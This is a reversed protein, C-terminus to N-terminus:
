QEGNKDERSTITNDVLEGDVDATIGLAIRKERDEELLKDREIKWKQLHEDFGGSVEIKTNTGFMTRYVECMGKLLNIKQFDTLKAENLLFEQLQFIALSNSKADNILAISQRQIALPNKTMKLGRIKASLKKRESTKGKGRARVSDSYPDGKGKLPFVRGGFKNEVGEINSEDRLDKLTQEM